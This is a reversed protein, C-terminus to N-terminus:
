SNRTARRDRGQQRKKRASVAEVRAQADIADFAETLEAGFVTLDDEDLVDYMDVGWDHADVTGEDSWNGSHGISLAM